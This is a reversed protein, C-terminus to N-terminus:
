YRSVRCSVRKESRYSRAALWGTHRSFLPFGKEKADIGRKPGLELRPRRVFQPTHVTLDFVDKALRHLFPFLILCGLVFVLASALDSKPSFGSNSFESELLDAEVRICRRAIPVLHGQYRGGQSRQAGARSKAHGLLRAPAWREWPDIKQIRFETNQIGGFDTERRGM